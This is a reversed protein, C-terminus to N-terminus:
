FELRNVWTPIRHNTVKDYQPWYPKIDLVITRDLADLGQVKIKNGKHELLKVTSIAVPNPRPPCRCAFIGVVPVDRKGQPRHRIVYDNRDAKNMLYIIIVHSYDEIGDLAGSFKKDMLITSIEDAFNGFRPQKVNNKVVGIRMFTIKKM